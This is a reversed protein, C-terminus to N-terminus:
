ALSLLLKELQSVSRVVCVQGRWDEHWERQRENLEGSLTKVEVLLNVGKYGILIDPVGGGVRHLLCVSAGWCRAAQVIDDQDADTRADYRM